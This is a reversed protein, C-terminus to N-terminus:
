KIEKKEIFAHPDFDKIEGAIQSSYSSPDFKTIRSIGSQGTCIAKWTKEVGMGLPTVLGIGTVVVRRRGDQRASETM